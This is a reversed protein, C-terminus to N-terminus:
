ATPSSQAGAPLEYTNVAVRWADALMGQEKAKKLLPHERLHRDQLDTVSVWALTSPLPPLLPGDSRVSQARPRADSSGAQTTHLLPLKLREGDRKFTHADVFVDQAAHRACHRPWQLLTKSDRFSYMQLDGAGRGLFIMEDHPLRVMIGDDSGYGPQLSLIATAIQWGESRLPKALGDKWEILADVYSPDYSYLGRYDPYIRSLASSLENDYHESLKPSGNVRADAHRAFVISYQINKAKWSEADNIRQQSQAAWARMKSLSEAASMKPPGYAESANTSSKDQGLPWCCSTLEM